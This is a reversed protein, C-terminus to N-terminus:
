VSATYSVTLTNGSVIPQDGGTFLGASYLVGTTGGKTSNSILFCGKITDSANATYVVGASLAKSRASASNWSAAPRAAQSYGTAETWGAHSAATDGAAPGTTFSTNGILGLYWAATYSSGGLYKDLLDNAGATTVLNDITEEWLLPGGEYAHCQVVYKGSAHAAETLAHALSIAALSGDRANGNENQIM